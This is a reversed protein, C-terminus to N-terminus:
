KIKSSNQIKYQKPSIGIIKKFVRSFYYENEFGTIEAIQSLSYLGTILLDCSYYIRKQNIFQIPPIGYKQVFLKKLYSYSIDCLNSLISCQLERETFHNNIYDIAPQILASKQAPIYVNAELIALIKYLISMCEYYYGNSKYFWIKQMKEFLIRVNNNQSFKQLSIQPVLPFDTDFFVDIVKSYPNIREIYYSNLPIQGAPMIRLCDKEEHYKKGNFCVTCEGDLRYIMENHYLYSGYNIRKKTSKNSYEIITHIKLVNVTEKKM